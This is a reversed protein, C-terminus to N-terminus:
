FSKQSCTFHLWLQDEEKKVLIVIKTWNYSYTDHTYTNSIQDYLIINLKYTWKNKVNSSWPVGSLIWTRRRMRVLEECRVHSHIVFQFFFLVYGSLRRRRGKERMKQSERIRKGPFNRNEWSVHAVFLVDRGDFSNMVTSAIWRIGQTIEYRLFVRTKIDM